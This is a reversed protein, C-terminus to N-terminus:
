LCASWCGVDALLSVIAETVPEKFMSHVDKKQCRTLLREFDERKPPGAPGAAGGGAAGGSPGWAAYQDELAETAATGATDMAAASAFGGGGGTRADSPAPAAGASLGLGTSSPAAAAAAQAAAAHTSRLTFTRPAAPAHPDYGEFDDIGLDRCAPLPLLVPHISASPLPSFICAAPLHTCRRVVGCWVVAAAGGGPEGSICQRRIIGLVWRLEKMEMRSRKSRKAAGGGGGLGDHELHRHHSPAAPAAGGLPARLKVKRSGGAGTAVKFQGPKSGKSKLRKAGGAGAGGASSVVPLTLRVIPLSAVRPPAPAPAWADDGGGAAAAAAPPGGFEERPQKPPPAKFKIIPKKGVPVGPRGTSLKIKKIASPPPAGEEGFGGGAAGPAERKVGAFSAPPAADWHQQPPAAAPPPASNTVKLKLKFGGPKPGAPEAKVGHDNGPPAIAPQSSTAAYHDQGRQPLPEGGTQASSTPCAGDGGTKVKLKFRFPAPASM